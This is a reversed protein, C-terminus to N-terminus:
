VKKKKEITKQSDSTWPNRTDKSINKGGLTIKKTQVQLQQGHKKENYRYVQPLERRKYKANRFVRPNGGRRGVFKRV